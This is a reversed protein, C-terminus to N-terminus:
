RLLGGKRLSDLILVEVPTNSPTLFCSLGRSLALDHLGTIYANLNSRYRDILKSSVTIEAAKLTEADTLRLDGTLGRPADLTPDLESPSLIHLLATDFASSGAAALSNIAPLLSGPGGPVLFDSLVVMVGRGTRRMAIDRLSSNFASSASIASPSSVPKSQRGDGSEASKDSKEANEASEANSRSQSPDANLATRASDLLFSAVRAVSPRGRVPALQRPHPTSGFTSVTVRNNNVLGIYALAMAVQHSFTLKSPSGAPMSASTDLVLHLCLDEDERFLKIFLKDLRAFVNWDIHRLDDGPSYNRFDDFEVSNGRRKSRREGPLKGAFIKRSLLDLRDIRQALAPPLLDEISRPLTDDTHLLM